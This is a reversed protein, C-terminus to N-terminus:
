DEVQGLNIIQFVMVDEWGQGVKVWDKKCGTIEFGASKFLKLSVENLLDVEAYLQHLKLHEFGYRVILRLADSAYGQKRARPDIMIGIGARSNIMDIDFLDIMGIRQNDELREIMFRAQKMALIDHTMANKVYEQIASLSYPGPVQSVRWLDPQNEWTYIFRADDLELARLRVLKGEM